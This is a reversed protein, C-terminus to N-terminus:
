QNLLVIILKMEAFAFATERQEYCFEYSERWGCEVTYKFETQGDMFKEKNM